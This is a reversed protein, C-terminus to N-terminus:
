HLEYYIYFISTTKHEEYRNLNKDNNWILDVVFEIQERVEIFDSDLNSQLDQIDYEQALSLM